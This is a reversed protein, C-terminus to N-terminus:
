WNVLLPSEGGIGAYINGNCQETQERSGTMSLTPWKLPSSWLNMPMNSMLPTIHVTKPLSLWTAKQPSTGWLRKWVSYMKRETQKVALLDASGLDVYRIAAPFIIHVTKSFTVELAYPPIMRNFTVPRTLGDFYDRRPAFVCEKNGTNNRSGACQSYLHVRDYRPAFIFRKM